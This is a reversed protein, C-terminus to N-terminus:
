IDIGLKECLNVSFDKSWHYIKDELMYYLYVFGRYGIECSIIKNEYEIDFPLIIAGKEKDIQSKGEKSFKDENKRADYYITYKINDKKTALKIISSVKQEYENKLKEPISEGVYKDSNLFDEYIELLEDKKFSSFELLRNIFDKGYNGPFSNITKNYLYPKSNTYDLVALWYRLVHAHSPADQAMKYCDYSTYGYQGSFLEDIVKKRDYKSPFYIKYQSEYKIDKSIKFKELIYQSLSNM